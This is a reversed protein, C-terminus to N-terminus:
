TKEYVQALYRPVPWLVNRPYFFSVFIKNPKYVWIEEKAKVNRFVKCIKNKKKM